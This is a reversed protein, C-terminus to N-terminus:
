PPSKPRRPGSAGASVHRLAQRPGCRVVRKLSAARGFLWPEFAAARPALAEIPEMALRFWRRHHGLSRIM